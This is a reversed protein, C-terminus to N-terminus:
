QVANIYQSPASVPLLVAAVTHSPQPWYSFWYAFVSASLLWWARYLQQKLHFTRAKARSQLELYEEGFCLNHFHIM